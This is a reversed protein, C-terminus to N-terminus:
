DKGGEETMAPKLGLTVLAAVTELFKIQRDPLPVSGKWYVALAGLRHTLPLALVSHRGVRGAFARWLGNEFSPNELGLHTVAKQTRWAKQAAKSQLALDTPKRREPHLLDDRFAEGLVFLKGSVEVSVTCLAANTARKVQAGALDALQGSSAGGAIAQTIVSVAELQAAWSEALQAAQPASLALAAASAAVSLAQLLPPDDFVDAASSTLSLHGIALGGALLPLAYVSAAETEGLSSLCAFSPQRAVYLQWLAPVAADFPFQPPSAEAASKPHKPRDEPESALRTLTQAAPNYGYLRVQVDPLSGLLAHVEEAIVRGATDATATGLRRGLTGLAMQRAQARDLHAQATHLATVEQFVAAAGGGPLATASACLVCVIGSPAALHYEASKAGAGSRLAAVHPLQGPPVRQGTSYCLSSLGACNPGFLQRAAANSSLVTGAADCVILANSTLDLTLPDLLATRSGALVLRHRLSGFAALGGLLLGLWFPRKFM